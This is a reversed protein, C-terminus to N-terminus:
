HVYAAKQLASTHPSWQVCARYVMCTSTRLVLPCVSSKSYGRTLVHVYTTAMSGNSLFWRVYAGQGSTWQKELGIFVGVRKMNQMLELHGWAVLPNRYCKLTNQTHKTLTHSANVCKPVNM